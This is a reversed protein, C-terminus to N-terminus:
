TQCRISACPSRLFADWTLFASFLLLACCILTSAQRHRGTRRRETYCWNCIIACMPQLQYSHPLPPLSCASLFHASLPNTCAPLAPVCKVDVNCYFSASALPRAASAQGRRGMHRHETYSSGHAMLGLVCLSHNSAAPYLSCAAPPCAAPARCILACHPVCFCM